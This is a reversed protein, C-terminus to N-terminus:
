EEAERRRKEANKQEGEKITRIYIGQIVFFLIMSTLISSGGYSIFPLTVGTLPIFKIGGGITLFIQFIYITGIGCSLLKYFKDEQKLAVEMIMIFCSLTILILFMGFIVGLEECIASFVFDADVFPISKPSGKLLGMGFWSGSGIAFLSQTIQYGQNDIYSWPDKWALVRVRVHSFMMYAAISAVVGGIIGIMFYWYNRTAIFLVVLFAIFFILASGLDKSLVLVLVHIASIITTIFVTKFSTNKCLIAALFFVFIIKVFESPQFTIGKISFSIKSGYTIEGLILVTSLFSIGIFAYLWYIKNWFSFKYMMFPIFLSIVLSALVIIYQKFSKNYSLRSVIVFGIGLLMCMNNLLLRNIKSYIMTPLTLAAILFIQVFAYLFLYELNGSVSLLNLFCLFQILFILVVQNQYVKLRKKENKYRFVYFGWFTYLAIFITILYKSISSIYAQM